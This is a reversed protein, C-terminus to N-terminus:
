NQSKDPNRAVGVVEAGKEAFYKAVALGLGSSAGWVVVRKM